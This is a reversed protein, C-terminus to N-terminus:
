RCEVLAERRRSSRRITEGKIDTLVIDFEQINVVGFDADM